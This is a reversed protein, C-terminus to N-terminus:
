GSESKKKVDKVDVETVEGTEPDTIRYIGDDGLEMDMLGRKEVNELLKTTADTLARGGGPQQEIFKILRGMRHHVTVDFESPKAERAGSKFEVNTIGDLMDKLICCGLLLEDM